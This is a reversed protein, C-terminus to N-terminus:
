RGKGSPVSPRRLRSAERDVMRRRAREYEDPSIEGRAKMAELEDLGFGHPSSAADRGVAMRRTWAMLIGGVVALAVLGGLWPLLRTFLDGSGGGQM